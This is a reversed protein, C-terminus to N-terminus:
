AGPVGALERQVDALSRNKTEPVTRVVFLAAGGSVAAFFWFVASKGVLDAAPLFMQGVVFNTAWNVLACVAGGRARAQPPFLEAALIWFVPGLGVAFAAVYTVMCVLATVNTVPGSPLGLVVGLAVLSLAMGGLSFLLLPRRGPRWGTAGM